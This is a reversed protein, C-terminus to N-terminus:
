HRPRRAPQRRHLHLVDGSDPDAFGTATPITVAKPMSAPRRQAPHRRHGPHRQHRHRHHAARRHRHRQRRLRHLHLRRHRHRRCGPRRGQQRRVRLQRRAQLTLTGYTGVLASGIAGATGTATEAGTRIQSVTLNASDVDTDTGAPTAASTILGNATTVTLTADELVSGVDNAAVPADNVATVGISATGQTSVGGNNDTATYHFSTNGNWNADPRFYVTGTAGSLTAGAPILQTMAADRYLTGHAPLDAITLQTVTGDVDTGGLNIAIPAAPDESGTASAATVTPRENTGLVDITIARTTGDVTTVTFTEVRTDGEKLAQVNAAGNNLTYTWDGAANISFTGYTGTVTAPNFAAPNDVDTM